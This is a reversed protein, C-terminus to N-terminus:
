PGWVISRLAPYKGIEEQQRSLKRAHATANAPTDFMGLHKGTRRYLQVSEKPSMVRGADSITPLLVEKGGIRFGMSRISATRGDPMRVRPRRVLDINGHELQGPAMIRKVADGIRAEAM